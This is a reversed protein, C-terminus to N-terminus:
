VSCRSRSGGACLAGSSKLYVGWGRSCCVFVCLKKRDFQMSAADAVDM